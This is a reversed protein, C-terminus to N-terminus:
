AISRSMEGWLTTPARFAHISATASLGAHKMACAGARSSRGMGVGTVADHFAVFRVDAAFQPKRLDRLGNLPLRRLRGIDCRDLTARTDARHRHLTDLRCREGADQHLVHM